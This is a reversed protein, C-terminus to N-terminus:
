LFTWATIALHAAVIEDDIEGTITRHIAAVAIQLFVQRMIGREFNKSIDIIQQGLRVFQEALM